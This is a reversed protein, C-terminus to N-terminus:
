SKTEPEANLMRAAINFYAALPATILCSVLFVSGATGSPLPSGLLSAVIRVLGSLALSFLFAHGVSSVM